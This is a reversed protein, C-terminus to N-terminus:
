RSTLVVSSAMYEKTKLFATNCEAKWEIDEQIANFFLDCKGSFCSILRSVPALRRTLWEIEKKTSPEHIQLIAWVQDPSDEIGRQTMMYGLIERFEVQLFVKDFQTADQQPLTYRFMAVFKWLSEISWTTSQLRGHNKRNSKHLHYQDVKTIHDLM